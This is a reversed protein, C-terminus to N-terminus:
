GERISHLTSATSLHRLRFFTARLTIQISGAGAVFGRWLIGALGGFRTGALTIM